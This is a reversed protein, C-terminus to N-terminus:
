QLYKPNGPMIESYATVLGSGNLTVEYRRISEIPPGADWVSRRKTTYKTMILLNQDPKWAPINYNVGLIEDDLKQILENITIPLTTAM